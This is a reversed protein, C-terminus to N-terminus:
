QDVKREHLAKHLESAIHRRLMSFRRAHTAAIAGNWGIQTSAVGLEFAEPLFLPQPVIRPPPRRHVQRSDMARPLEHSNALFDIIMM